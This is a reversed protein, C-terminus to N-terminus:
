PILRLATEVDPRPSVSLSHRKLTNVFAEAIGNSQLRRVPTFCPKIGIRRAFGRTQRAFTHSGNDILFEIPQLTRWIGFRREVVELLVNRIDSGSIGANVAGWDSDVNM